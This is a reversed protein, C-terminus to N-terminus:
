VGIAHATIAIGTLNVAGAEVLGVPSTGSTAWCQVKGTASNYSAQVAGNNSASGSVMLSPPAAFASLGFASPPVPYGGSPYSNDPTITISALRVTRPSETLTVVTPTSITAAM